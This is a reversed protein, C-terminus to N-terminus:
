LICYDAIASKTRTLHLKTTGGLSDRHIIQQMASELDTDTKSGNHTFIIDAVFFVYQM